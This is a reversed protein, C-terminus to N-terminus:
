EKRPMDKPMDKWSANLDSATGVFLFYNRLAPDYSITWVEQNKGWSSLVRSSGDSRVMRFRFYEWGRPLPTSTCAKGDRNVAITLFIGSRSLPPCDPQAFSAMIWGHADPPLNWLIPRGWFGTLYTIGVVLVLVALCSLSLWRFKKM